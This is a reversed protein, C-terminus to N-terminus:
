MGVSKMANLIHDRASITTEPREPKNHEEVLFYDYGVRKLARMYAPYDMHGQGAWPLQRTGDKFVMDKAHALIINGAADDVIENIAEGIRNLDSEKFVNPPDMTLKLHDSGIVNIAEVIERPTGIVCKDYLEIALYVNNEEAVAVCRSIAGMVQKRAADLDMGPKKFGGWTIVINAGLRPAVVLAREVEEVRKAQAAADGQLFDVSRGLAVIEVGAGHFREKIADCEDDSYDSDVRLQVADFGLTKLNGTDDDLFAMTALKM